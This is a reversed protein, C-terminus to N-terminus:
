RKLYRGDKRWFLTCRWVMALRINPDSDTCEEMPISFLVM